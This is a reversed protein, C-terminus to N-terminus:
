RGFASLKWYKLNMKGIPISPRWMQIMNNTIFNKNDSSLTM